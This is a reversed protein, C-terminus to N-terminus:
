NMVQLSRSFIIPRNSRVMQMNKTTPLAADEENSEMKSIKKVVGM